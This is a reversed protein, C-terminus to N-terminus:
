RPDICILGAPMGVGDAASAASATMRRAAAHPDAALEAGVALGAEALGFGLGVADAAAPALGDGLWLGTSPRKRPSM